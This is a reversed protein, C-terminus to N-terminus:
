ILWDVALKRRRAAAHFPARGLVKRVRPSKTPKVSAPLVEYKSRQSKERLAVPTPFEQPHVANLNCNSPVRVM